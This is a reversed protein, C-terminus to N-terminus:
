WGSRPRHWSAPRCRLLPDRTRGAPLEIEVTRGRAGAGDRPQPDEPIGIADQYDALGEIGVVPDPGPAGQASGHHGSKMADLAQNTANLPVCRCRRQYVVRVTRDIACETRNSSP